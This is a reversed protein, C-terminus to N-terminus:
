NTPRVCKIKSSGAEITNCIYNGFKLDKVTITGIEHAKGDVSSTQIDQQYVTVTGSEPYDGSISVKVPNEGSTDAGLIGRNTAGETFDVTVEVNQTPSDKMQHQQYALRVADVVGYAKDEAASRRSDEVVNLIIPTTILAIIALIIIVALLEILTFGKQSNKM